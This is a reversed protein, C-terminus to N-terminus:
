EDESIRNFFGVVRPAEGKVMEPQFGNAMAQEYHEKSVLLESVIETGEGAIEDLGTKHNWRYYIKPRIKTVLKYAPQGSETTVGTTQCKYM